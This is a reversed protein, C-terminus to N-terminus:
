QGSSRSSANEATWGRASLEELMNNTAEVLTAVRAHATTLANALVAPDEIYEQVMQNRLNRIALWEDASPTFGLKEARDLNDIVAGPREGLARLLAPLLKDGLTDQLRGFRGVFAEVREALQANRELSQATEVTFATRFLRSDTSLLHNCEKELVRALFALRSALAPDITM